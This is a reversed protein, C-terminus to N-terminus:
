SEAGVTTAATTLRPPTQRSPAADSTDCRGRSRNPSVLCLQEAKLVLEAVSRAQMKRMVHARHFKVTKETIGLEAATQKNLLGAAVREMVGRESPTLLDFHERLSALHRQRECASQDRQLAQQVDELLEQEQFPKTLFDVAGAKMARVATRIDGHRTVFILPIEIGVKTLERQLDLGSLEPLQAELVVCAPPAPRRGFLFQAASGFVQVRFGVSRLLRATSCCSDEEGDIIVVTAAIDDM